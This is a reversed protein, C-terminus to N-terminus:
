RGAATSAMHRPTVHGNRIARILPMLDSKVKRLAEIYKQTSTDERFRQVLKNVEVTNPVIFAVEIRGARSEGIVPRMIYEVDHAALYAVLSLDFIPPLKKEAAEM